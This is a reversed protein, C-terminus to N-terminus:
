PGFAVRPGRAHAACRASGQVADLVARHEIAHHGSRDCDAIADVDITEPGGHITM